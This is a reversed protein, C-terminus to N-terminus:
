ADWVKIKDAIEPMTYSHFKPDIGHRRQVMYDDLCGLAWKGLVFIAAVNCLTMLAMTIDAFTWVAGLSAMAGAFVMGGVCLRYAAM